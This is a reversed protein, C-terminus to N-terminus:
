GVLKLKLRPSHTTRPLERKDVILTIRDDQVVATVKIKKLRVGRSKQEQLKLQWARLEDNFQKSTM